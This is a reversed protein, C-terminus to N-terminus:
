QNDKKLVEGNSNSAINKLLYGIFATIGITAVAKWDIQSGSELTNYVATLVATIVALILGKIFDNGNLKGLASNM